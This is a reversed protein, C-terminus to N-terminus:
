LISFHLQHEGIHVSDSTCHSYWSYMHLMDASPVVFHLCPLLCCLWKELFLHSMTHSLTFTQPWFDLLPSLSQNVRPQLPVISYSCFMFTIFFVHVQYRLSSRNLMSRSLSLSKSLKINLVSQIVANHTVSQPNLFPEMALMLM